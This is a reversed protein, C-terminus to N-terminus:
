SLAVTKAPRKFTPIITEGPALSAIYALDLLVSQATPIGGAGLGKLIQKNGKNNKLLIINEGGKAEAFYSGTPVMAPAVRLELQDQEFKATCLLKIVCNQQRASAIDDPTIHAIGQRDIQDQSVLTGFAIAALLALKQSSDFGGVDFTRDAEVWGLKDAMDFAQQYSMADHTMKDLIFNTTGNLIAEIEIIEGQRYLEHLVPIGGAVAAEMRLAVNNQEAMHSLMLGDKAMLAKNATVVHIGHQLSKEILSKSFQINGTLEVIVDPRCAILGDASDVFNMAAINLAIRTGDDFLVSRPKTKDNAYVAAIEFPRTFNLDDPLPQNGCDGSAILHYLAAGVTGLGALAIKLPKGDDAM